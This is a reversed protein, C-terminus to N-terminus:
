ALTLADASAEVMNTRGSLTSILKASASVYPTILHSKIDVETTAAGLTAGVVALGEELLGVSM